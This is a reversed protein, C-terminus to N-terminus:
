VIASIVSSIDKECKNYENVANREYKAVSEMGKCIEELKAIDDSLRLQFGLAAEGEWLQELLRGIEELNAMYSKINKLEGEITSEDSSLKNTNSKIIESM